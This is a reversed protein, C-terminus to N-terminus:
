QTEVIKTGEPMTVWSHRQSSWYATRPAPFDKDPFCGASVGILGPLAENFFYLTSGCTACFHHETLRGSEGRHPWGRADGAITVASQPFIAAYTFASGSIQRCVVCSCTYVHAPEGRTEVSLAGCGCRATRTREPNDTVIAETANAREAIHLLRAAGPLGAPLKRGM